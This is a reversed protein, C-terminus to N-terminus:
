YKSKANPFASIAKALVTITVGESQPVAVFASRSTHKVEGDYFEECVGSTNNGIKYDSYERVKNRGINDADPHDQTIRGFKNGSRFYVTLKGSEMKNGTYGIINAKVYFDDCYGM